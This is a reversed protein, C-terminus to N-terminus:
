QLLRELTPEIIELEFGKDKLTKISHDFLAKLVTKDELNWVELFINCYREEYNFVVQEVLPAKGSLFYGEWVDGVRPICLLDEKSFTKTLKILNHGYDKKIAVFRIINIKM